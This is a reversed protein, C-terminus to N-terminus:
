KGVGNLNEFVLEKPHFTKIIDFDELRVRLYANVSGTIIGRHGRYYVIGGRKAPVGYFDRIYAMTM